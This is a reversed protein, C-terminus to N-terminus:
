EFVLSYIRCELGFIGDFRPTASAASLHASFGSQFKSGIRVSEYKLYDLMYCIEEEDAEAFREAVEAGGRKSGM